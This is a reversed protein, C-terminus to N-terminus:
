PTGGQAKTALAGAAARLKTGDSFTVTVPKDTPNWAVYARGGDHAFVAYTPVDATVTTDPRGLVKLAGIWQITNARSGGSTAKYGADRDLKKAATPADALAQFSWILDRWQQEPGGNTAVLDAHNRRVYDARRGLYLSAGTIPLFNIGHIEEPNATWWTAYAGGNGWVMGLCSHRFGKPFVDQDVDFWYQQVARVETEFLYIGLDRLARDGTAGGWLAVAAAYNLSESSSEQNNGAAFAAPGSAWSHGAYPDFTRLYPFRKDDRRPCTADDILLKVMGGFAKDRAWARDFRAVAVAAMIYYGYHFHHDNLDSDSGYSAPYGILTGFTKDYYFLKRRRGAPPRLWDGLESKLRAVFVDRETPLKAEDAVHALAALRGLAKGTWYTDRAGLPKDAKAAAGVAEVVRRRVEDSGAAPLAPLIGHCTMTTAFATEGAGAAPALLKMPGRPSLYSYASLTADTNKWQHPYLALLTRGETGQRVDPRVRYTTTLTARPADYAWAVRTEAPFAFAHRAFLKLAAPSPEPLLGVTFSDKGPALPSRLTKTGSWTAGAPAFLGYPHGGVTVGVTAGARHWVKPTGRFTVVVDGGTRTFYACPLGHGITATLTTGAGPWVATVTWDGFGDVRVESASLGAVSVTMDEAYHYHYSRGKPDIAPRTPYSIGLGDAKARFALPHAYLNDSFPKEPRRKWVLSTWWDTTPVPGALRRTVFPRAPKRHNDSPGRAGPPLTTTYGGQGVLVDGGWAPGTLVAVAVWVGRLLRGCNPTTNMAPWQVVKEAPLTYHRHSDIESRFTGLM